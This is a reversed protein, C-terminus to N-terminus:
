SFCIRVDGKLTRTPIKTKQEKCLEAYDKDSQRVLQVVLGIEDDVSIIRHVRQDNIFVKIRKRIQERFCDGSFPFDDMSLKM